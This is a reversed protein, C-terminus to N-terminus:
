CGLATVQSVEDLPPFLLDRWSTPASSMSYPTGGIEVLKVYGIPLTVHVM